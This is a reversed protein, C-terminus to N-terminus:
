KVEIQKVEVKKPKKLGIEVKLIGANYFAKIEGGSAAEPLTWSRQFQKKCFGHDNEEKLNYGLMLVGGQTEVKFDDRELGPASLLITIKEEDHKIKLNEEEWSDWSNQPSKIFVPYNFGSSLDNITRFMSLLM